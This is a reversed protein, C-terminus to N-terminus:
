VLWRAPDVQYAYEDVLTFMCAQGYFDDAMPGVPQMVISEQLVSRILTYRDAIIRSFFDNGVQECTDQTATVADENKRGVKQLIFFCIFKEWNYNEGRPPFLKKDPTVLVLITQNKCTKIFDDANKESHVAIFSKNAVPDHRLAPHIAAYNAFYTKIEEFTM